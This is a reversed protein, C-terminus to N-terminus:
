DQRRGDIVAGPGDVAANGRAPADGPVVLPERHGYHGAAPVQHGPDVADGDHVPRVVARRAVVGALAVPGRRPGDADLPVVRRRVEAEPVQPDRLSPTNPM